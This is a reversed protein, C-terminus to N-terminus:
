GRVSEVYQELAEMALGSLCVIASQTNVTLVLMSFAILIGYAITISLSIIDHFLRKGM